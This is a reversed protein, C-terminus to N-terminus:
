GGARRASALADAVGPERPGLFRPDPRFVADLAAKGAALIERTGGYYWTADHKADVGIGYSTVGAAQCLAVARRIHFGQSILVAEHVGFIKRARVCSDWTDFGAYDSVIRTGPVGHRTLYARMADPEDYDERSNDGTVLVVEIRNERYLKAAADLRHALYPSPEGDWLGAGFVVAVQTRPVDATTRLRDGTVVYMWTSPLLALVCGAMVAQVLRRRGARTRPLRPRRVRPLRM